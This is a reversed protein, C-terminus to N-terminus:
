KRLLVVRTAFLLLELSTARGIVVGGADYVNNSTEVEWTSVCAGKVYLKFVRGGGAVRQSTFTRVYPEDTSAKMGSPFIQSYEPFGELAHPMSWAAPSAGLTFLNGITVPLHSYNTTLGEELDTKTLGDKFCRSVITLSFGDNLVAALKASHKIHLPGGPRM